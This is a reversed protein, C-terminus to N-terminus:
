SSGFQLLFQEYESNFKSWLPKLVYPSVGSVSRKAAVKISFYIV